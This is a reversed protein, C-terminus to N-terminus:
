PNSLHTRARRQREVVFNAASQVIMVGLLFNAGTNEGEPASPVSPIAVQSTSQAHRIKQAPRPVAASDIRDFVDDHRLGLVVGIPFQEAFDRTLPIVFLDALDQLRSHRFDFRFFILMKVPRFVM